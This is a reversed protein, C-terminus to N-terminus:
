RTSETKGVKDLPKRTSNGAKWATPTLHTVKKFQGSLAAVSSYGLDYAIEKLSFEGYALLEKVREIRQQISFQEITIGEAESFQSSLYNYDYRLTGALYDSLKLKIDDDGRKRIFEIITTKIAEIIQSKKDELLEFGVSELKTKAIEQQAPTIEDEALEIVGLEIAVPHLGTEELQTRVVMKCRDCVMNKIFLKSGM